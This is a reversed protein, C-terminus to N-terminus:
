KRIEFREPLDLHEAEELDVEHVTAHPPGIYSWSILKEINENSGGAEFYVSGDPMNMVFGKLGLGIAQEQTTVRYFVGQVKGHVRVKIYRLVTDSM